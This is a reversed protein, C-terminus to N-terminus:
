ELTTDREHLPYIGYMALMRVISFHKLEARM